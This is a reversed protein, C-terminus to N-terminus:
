ATMPARLKPSHMSTYLAEVDLQLMQDLAPRHSRRLTGLTNEKDSTLDRSKRLFKRVDPRVSKVFCENM